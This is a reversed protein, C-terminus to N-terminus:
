DKVEEVRVMFDVTHVMGRIPPTDEKVVSQHLRRLGLARITRRHAQKTGIESRVWTIKLKNAM